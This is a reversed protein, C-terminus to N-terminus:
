NVFEIRICAKCVPCYGLGALLRVSSNCGPCIDEKVDIDNSLLGRDWCASCAGDSLQREEGCFECAGTSYTRGPIPLFDSGPKKTIGSFHGPERTCKSYVAMENERARLEAGCYPCVDPQERNALEGPEPELIRLLDPKLRAVEEKLEATITGAAPAEIRVKGDYASLHIGQGELHSILERAASM